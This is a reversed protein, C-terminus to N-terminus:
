DDLFSLYEEQMSVSKQDMRFPADWEDIIIAFKTKTKNYISNLVLYLDNYDSQHVYNPYINILEEFVKNSIFKALSTEGNRRMSNLLNSANLLLTDYKNLHQDWNPTQSLKLKSFLKKSDFGRSYYQNLMSTTLTKGLRRARAVCISNGGVNIRKNICSIFDSKDVFQPYTTLKEFEDIQQNLYSEGIINNEM